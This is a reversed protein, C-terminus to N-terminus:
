NPRYCSLTPVEQNKVPRRQESKDFEKLLMMEMPHLLLKIQAEDGRTETLQMLPTYNSKARSVFTSWSGIDFLEALQSKRREVLLKQGRKEKLSLSRLATIYDNFAREGVSWLAVYRPFLDKLTGTFLERVMQTGPLQSRRPSVARLEDNFLVRIAYNLMSAKIADVKGREGPSIRNGERLREWRDCFDIFALMLQPTLRKPHISSKLNMLDRPLQEGALAHSNINLTFRIWRPDNDVWEIRGSFEDNERVLVFDFQLDSTSGSKRREIRNPHVGVQIDILRRPYADTFSGELRTGYGKAVTPHLDLKSWRKQDFIEPLAIQIFGNQAAEIWQPDEDRYARWFDRAIREVIEGGPTFSALKRLTYGSTQYTLLEGHGHHEIEKTAQQSVGFTELVEDPCGHEPFAAWLKVASRHEPTKILNGLALMDEVASRITHVQGANSVQGTDFSMQGNMFDEILHVPTYTEGTKDFHRIACQLADVVTRPGRGLDARTAIQGISQLTYKHIVKNAWENLSFQDTYRQWLETPFTVSYINRLNIYLRDTKLRDLIDHGPDIIVEETTDPLCIILSLPLDNHTALWLVIERLQQITARLNLTKDFLQQLEDALIVLGDFGARKTALNAAYELFRLLNAPTLEGIPVGQKKEEELLARADVENIGIRKAISKVHDEFAARSYQNYVSELEDALEGGIRFRLWGYTATLIDQLSSCIFPPVAVLHNDECAKWTFILTSTKGYGWPAVIAGKPTKAQKTKDTLRKVFDDTDGLPVHTHYHALYAHEVEQPESLLQEAFKTSVVQKKELIDRLGENLM